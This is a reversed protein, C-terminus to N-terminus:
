PVRGCLRELIRLRLDVLEPYEYFFLIKQGAATLDSPEATFVFYLFTEAIDETPSNAAYSSVFRVAHEQYFAEQRDGYSEHDEVEQIAQWEEYIDAWFREYFSNLYSGPRSCGQPTFFTSCAAEAQRYIQEDAPNEFVRPDTQVQAENLTLLHGLEHLLTTSLDPFSRSDILDVELRWLRPDDTQEVAGLAGNVGDTFVEFEAIAARQDAPIVEIVFRWIAQQGADDDQYVALSDPVPPYKPEGLADGAVRYSVLPFENKLEEGPFSENEAEHLVDELKRVCAPIDEQAATPLPTPSETPVASATPSAEGSLTPFGTPLSLCAAAPLALLIGWAIKKPM